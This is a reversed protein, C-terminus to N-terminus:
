RVGCCVNGDYVSVCLCLRWVGHNVNGVPDHKSSFQKGHDIVCPTGVPDGEMPVFGSMTEVIIIFLLSLVLGLVGRQAM